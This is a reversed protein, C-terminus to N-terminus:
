RRGKLRGASDSGLTYAIHARRVILRSEASTQVFFLCLRFNRRNHPTAPKDAPRRRALDELHRGLFLCIARVRVWKGGSGGTSSAGIAPIVSRGSRRTTAPNPAPSTVDSITADSSISRACGSARARASSPVPSPAVETCSTPRSAAGIASAALISAPMPACAISMLMPHGARRTVVPQDPDASIRSGSWASRSISATTPATSTGTVSFVRSPQSSPHRFAGSRARRASPAPM